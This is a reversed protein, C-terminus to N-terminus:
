GRVLGLLLRALLEHPDSLMEARYEDPDMMLQVAKLKAPDPASRGHM